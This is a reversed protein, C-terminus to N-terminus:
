CDATYAANTTRREHLFDILLISARPRRDHQQNEVRERGEKFEKYWAFVRTRSLTQDGFQATLKQFIETAQVGERALFRRIIRQAISPHM